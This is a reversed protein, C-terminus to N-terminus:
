HRSLFSLMADNFAQAHDSQMWHTAGRIMVLSGTKLCRALTEAIRQLGM